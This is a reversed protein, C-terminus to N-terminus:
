RTNHPERTRKHQSRWAELDDEVTRVEAVGIRARDLPTLGLLSLSRTFQKTVEMYMRVDAPQYKTRAVLEKLDVLMDLQECAMALMEVDQQPALWSVSYSWIRDWMKRGPEKLPRPPEPINDLDAQPITMRKTYGRSDSRRELPMRLENASAM